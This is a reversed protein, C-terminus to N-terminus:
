RPRWRPQRENEKPHCINLHGYEHNNVDALGTRGSALRFPKGKKRAGVAYRIHLSDM